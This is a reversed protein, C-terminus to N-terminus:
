GILLQNPLSFYFSGRVCAGLAPTLPPATEKGRGDGPKRSRRAEPKYVRKATGPLTINSAQRAMRGMRLRNAGDGAPQFGSENAYFIMLAFRAGAGSFAM